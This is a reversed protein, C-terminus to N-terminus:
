VDYDFDEDEIEPPAWAVGSKEHFRMITGIEEDEAIEIIYEVDDKLGLEAMEEPSLDIYLEGEENRKFQKSLM